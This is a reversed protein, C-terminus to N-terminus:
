AIQLKYSFQQEFEEKSYDEEVDDDDDDCEWESSDYEEYVEDYDGYKARLERKLEERLLGNKM